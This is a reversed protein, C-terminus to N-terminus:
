ALSVEAPDLLGLRVLDEIPDTVTCCGFSTFARRVASVDAAALVEVLQEPTRLELLEALREPAAGDLGAQVAALVNLLGHQELGDTTTRRLAAHLGATLKFPLRRVLCGHVFGALQGATAFAAPDTGGTRLKAREAGDEALVDLARDFGERPLEIYATTSFALQDLLVQTAAAPDHGPPLPIEVQVLAARDDQDLLRSMAEVLSGLGDDAIVGLRLDEGARTDSLLEDVDSARVLLPGVLPAYWSRRHERHGQLAGAVTASSPPFVAANDILGDLLGWM